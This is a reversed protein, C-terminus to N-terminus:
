QSYKFNCFVQRQGWSYLWKVIEEHPYVEFLDGLRKGERLRNLAQFETTEVWYVQVGCESRLVLAFANKGQSIEGNNEWYTMVDWCSQFWQTSPQFVFTLTEPNPINGLVDLNITQGLPCHLAESVRIELVALDELYPFSQTEPWERLFAPLHYGVKGLDPGRSPYQRVYDYVLQSFLDEGLLSSIKPFLEKMADEMRAPLGTVYAQFRDTLSGEPPPVCISELGQLPTTSTLGNEFKLHDQFIKQIEKLKM